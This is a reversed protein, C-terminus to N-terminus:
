MYSSLKYLVFSQMYLPLYKNYPFQFAAPPKLFLEDANGSLHIQTQWTIEKVTFHQKSMNLTTKLGEQLFALTYSYRYSRICTNYHQWNDSKM